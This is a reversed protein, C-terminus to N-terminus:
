GRARAQDPLGGEYLRRARACGACEEAVGRGPRGSLMFRLLAVRPACFRVLVPCFDGGEDAVTDPVAAADPAPEPDPAGEDGAPAPAQEGSTENLEGAQPEPDVAEGALLRRNYEAVFERAEDVWAADPELDRGFLAFVASVRVRRSDLIFFADGRLLPQPTLLFGTRSMALGSSSVEVGGAPAPAWDLGCPWFEARLSEWRGPSM